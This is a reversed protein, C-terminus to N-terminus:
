AVGGAAIRLHDRIEKEAPAFDLARRLWTRAELLEGNKYFAWGLSDLYAANQPKKDVAKRCLSLGRVLDIDLDVLIYGLGNMATTNEGDMDLSKEYLEVANKYQKQAWAAYALTNYLIASEFGSIQLRKLEFEAMKSRRTVAYIYALTMRCQSIRMMDDEATIVQELYLLADDYRKLKAYCLGKYYALEANEKSDFEEGNAKHFEKLAQEWHKIRFLRIGEQLKAFSSLRDEAM